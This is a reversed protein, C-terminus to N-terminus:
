KGGKELESHRSQLRTTVIDLSANHAKNMDVDEHFGKETEDTYASGVVEIAEKLTQIQAQKVHSELQKGRDCTCYVMRESIPTSGDPDGEFDGRWSTGSRYTAYGKGYCKTCGGFAKETEKQAQQIQSRVLSKIKERWVPAEETGVKEAYRLLYYDLEKWQEQKQPKPLLERGCDPCEPSRVDEVAITGWPKLECTKCKKETKKVM